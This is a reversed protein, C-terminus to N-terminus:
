SKIPRRRSDIEYCNGEREGKGGGGGVQGSAWPLVSSGALIRWRERGGGSRTADVNRRYWVVMGPAGLAVIKQKVAALM